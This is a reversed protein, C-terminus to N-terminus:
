NQLKNQKNQKTLFVKGTLEKNEQIKNCNLFNLQQNFHKMLSSVTKKLINGKLNLNAIFQFINQNLM